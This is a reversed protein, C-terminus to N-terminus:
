VWFIFSVARMVAEQDALDGLEQEINLLAFKESYTRSFSRISHGRNHLSKAIYRGLFGNAGTLLIRM